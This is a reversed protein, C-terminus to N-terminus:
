EPVHFAPLEVGAQAPPRCGFAQGRWALREPLRLDDSAPGFLQEGAPPDDRPVDQGRLDGRRRPARQNSLEFSQLQEAVGTASVEDFAMSALLVAERLGDFQQSVATRAAAVALM